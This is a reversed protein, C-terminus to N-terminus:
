RRELFSSRTMGAGVSDYLVTNARRLQELNGNVVFGQIEDEALAGRELDYPLRQMCVVSTNGRTHINTVMRDAIYRAVAAKLDDGAGELVQELTAPIMAFNAQHEILLEVDDMTLDNAGLLERLHHSAGRTAYLFVGKGDMFGFLGDEDSRAHIFDGFCGHSRTRADTIGSSFRTYDFGSGTHISIEFSGSKSVFVSAIRHCTASEVFARAILPAIEPDHGVSMIDFAFSDVNHDYFELASKFRSFVGSEVADPYMLEVLRHQVRAASAPIRIELDGLQNDVIIGGLPLRGNIKFLAAAIDSVPDRGFPHPRTDHRSYRGHPALTSTTELATAMADDGFIINATHGPKFAKARHINEAGVIISIADKTLFGARSLALLVGVSANFGPCGAYLDFVLANPCNQEIIDLSHRIQPGPDHKDEGVNTAGIVIKTKSFDIDSNEILNRLALVGIRENDPAAVRTKIGIRSQITEDNVPIDGKFSMGANEYLSNDLV